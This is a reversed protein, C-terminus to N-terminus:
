LPMAEGTEPSTAMVSEVVAPSAEVQENGTENAVAATATVFNDAPTKDDDDSGFCGALALTALTAGLLSLRTQM